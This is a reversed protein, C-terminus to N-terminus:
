DCLFPKCIRQILACNKQLKPLEPPPSGPSREATEASREHNPNILKAAEAAREGFTASNEEASKNSTIPGSRGEARLQM